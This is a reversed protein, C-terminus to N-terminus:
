LLIATFFYSPWYRYIGNAVHIRSGIKFSNRLCSTYKPDCSISDVTLQTIEQSHIARSQMTDIAEQSRYLRKLSTNFHIRYKLTSRLFLSEHSSSRMSKCNVGITQWRLNYHTFHLKKDAKLFLCYIHRLKRIFQKVNLLDETLRKEFM